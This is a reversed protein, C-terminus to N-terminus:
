LDKFDTSFILVYQSSLVNRRRKKDKSKDAESRLSRENNADFSKFYPSAKQRLKQFNKYDMKSM